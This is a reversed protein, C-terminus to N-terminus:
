ILFYLILSLIILPLIPMVVKQFPFYARNDHRKKMWNYLLAGSLFSLSGIIIGLLLKDVGWLKNLPHGLIDTFFLPAIILVYYGIIILFERAPFHYNKKNMWNLTWIIVSVTLGGIWLGSISDDIGLWRSLGVGAIVAVTCVPCVARVPLAIFFGIISIVSIFIKRM